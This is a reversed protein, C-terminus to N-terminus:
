VVLLSDDTRNIEKWRDDIIWIVETRNGRGIRQGIDICHATVHQEGDIQNGKGIIQVLVNKAPYQVAARLLDGFGPAHNNATVAHRIPLRLIAQGYGPQDRWAGDPRLSASM